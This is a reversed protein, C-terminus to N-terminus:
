LPGLHFARECATLSARPTEGMRVGLSSKRYPGEQHWRSALFTLTPVAATPHMCQRGTNATTRTELSLHPTTKVAQATQQWPCLGRGHSSHCIWNICSPRKRGKRLILQLLSLKWTKVTNTANHSRQQSIKPFLQCLKRIFYLNMNKVYTGTFLPFYKHATTQNATIFSMNKLGLLLSNNCYVPFKGQSDPHEFFQSDEERTVPFPVAGWCLMRQLHAGKQKTHLARSVAATTELCSLNVTNINTFLSKQPRKM